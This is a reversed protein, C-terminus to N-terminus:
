DLGLCGRLTEAAAASKGNALQVLALVVAGREALPDLERVRQAADSLLAGFGDDMAVLVHQRLEAVDNWAAQFTEPLVEEAWQVRSILLRRGTEDYATIAEPLSDDHM